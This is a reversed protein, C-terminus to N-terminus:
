RWPKPGINGGLRFVFIMYKDIYKNHSHSGRPQRHGHSGRQRHGYGGTSRCEVVAFLRRTSRSSPMSWCRLDVLACRGNPPPVYKTLIGRLKHM